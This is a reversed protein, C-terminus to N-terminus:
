RSPLGVGWSGLLNFKMHDNICSIIQGSAHQINVKVKMVQVKTEPHLTVKWFAQRALHTKLAAVDQLGSLVVRDALCFAIIEPNLYVM